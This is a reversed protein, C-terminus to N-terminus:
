LPNMFFTEAIRVRDFVQAATRYLRILRLPLNVVARKCGQFAQQPVSRYYNLYLIFHCMRFVFEGLLPSVLSSSMIKSSSRRQSSAGIATCSHNVM